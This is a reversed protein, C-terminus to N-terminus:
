WVCGTLNQYSNFFSGASTRPVQVQSTDLLLGAHDVHDCPVIKGGV